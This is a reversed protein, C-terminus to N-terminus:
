NWQGVHLIQAFLNPCTPPYLAFMWDMVDRSVVSSNQVATVHCIAHSWCNNVPIELYSLARQSPYGAWSIWKFILFSLFSFTFHHPWALPKSIAWTLASAWIKRGVCHEEMVTDGVSLYYQNSALVAEWCINLPLFNWVRKWPHDTVIEM